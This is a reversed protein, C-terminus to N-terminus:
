KKEPPIPEAKEAEFDDAVLARPLMRLNLTFTATLEKGGDVKLSMASLLKDEKGLANEAQLGNGGTKEVFKKMRVPNLVVDLVPSDAPKVALATKLVPIPDPGIVVFVGKPAFAYAVLCKEGGFPKGIDGFFGRGGVFQYTHIAVTGAKDADWKFRAQEDAPADKEVFAKWEKAVAAPDEFAFAVVATFDGNKDPGRIGGVVDAEGTKATRTLGKFIEDMFDKENGNLNAQKRGEELAKVAGMKLEDNFLPLRTKFGAATDATLLGGFQNGTPKRAAIAKALATDAKPKLVAEVSLGGTPVDLNLKLTAVDGGTLLLVYRAFLKEVEDIMPKFIAAEQRGFGFIRLGDGDLGLEKKIEKAYTPVALKVEPTLRDFHFKAAVVAQEAPDYLKNAPVLAAADLAPEPNAGYSIYAYRDSFRMLAKYRPDLPPLQFLGKGLDKPASGNFRECLALFDKEATFPIAVVAVIDEPKPALTVYGVVPRDLDLGAFGKDGLRDKIAANVAKVAKEGGILDAAARFDDLVRNIPQSQFTIPPDAPGAARALLVPPAPDAAPPAARLTAPAVLAAAALVLAYRM